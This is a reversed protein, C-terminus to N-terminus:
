RHDPAPRSRQRAEPPRAGEVQGAPAMGLAREIMRELARVQGLMAVLLARDTPLATTGAAGPRPSAQLLRRHLAETEPMPTVGLESA